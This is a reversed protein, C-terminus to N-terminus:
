RWSDPLLLDAGVAAVTLTVVAATALLARHRWPDDDTFPAAQDDPDVRALARRYGTPVMVLVVALASALLLAGAARVVTGEGVVKLLLAGVAGLSFATREWALATRELAAIGHPLPPSM